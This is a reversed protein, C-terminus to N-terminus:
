PYYRRVASWIVKGNVVPTVHTFSFGSDVVLICESYPLSGHTNHWPILSPAPMLQYNSRLGTTRCYSNFEYEEFVIQDYSSQLIPLDLIPETVLLSTEAPEMQMLLTMPHHVALEGEFFFSDWIAKQTEWSTLYGKTLTAKSARVRDFPRRFGMAGFDKCNRLQQGVYVRRDSKSRAICNPIRSM